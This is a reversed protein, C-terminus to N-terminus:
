CAFDRRAAPSTGVGCYIHVRAAYGGPGFGPTHFTTEGSPDLPLKADFAPKDGGLMTVILRATGTTGPLPRLVVDTPTGAICGHPVDVVTSEFRPDRMLWGLLGDWLAGHARGAAQTAFNSFGLRHSGDVTLAISRGNGAEGLALVPMPRGAANLTPHQLLVTAGPRAPGVINTGPMEPWTEGILDRLPGLVPAVRGAPTFVPTFFSLDVGKEVQDRSLSVPLVDALPSDAYMGPGFSDPGGVMILGGGEKVYDALAPLHKTLGYLAANFDQLVIADFSKLHVTFLQDVPFPILALESPPAGVNDTPTRLIFFAVVDVSEDAKLWMRLARVDYTPRGAVHLVRIRDRAVDLSIFRKDNEPIEDGSPSDISVELVHAGALHLTLPLEVIGKGDKVTADGEALTEAGSTKLERVTVPVKACELGGACGVEVHLAFPQHAVAAGALSVKRVSADKPVNTALAVTHIPVDISGLGM